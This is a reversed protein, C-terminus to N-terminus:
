PGASGSIPPTRRLAQADPLHELVDADETRDDRTEQDAREELVLETADEVNKVPIGNKVNVAQLPEDRTGDRQSQQEDDADLRTERTPESSSNTSNM